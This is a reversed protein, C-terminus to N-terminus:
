IRTLQICPLSLYILSKSDTHSLPLRFFLDGFPSIQILNLKRYMKGWQNEDQKLEQFKNCNKKAFKSKFPM